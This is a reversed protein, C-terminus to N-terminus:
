RPLGRLSRWDREPNRDRELFLRIAAIGAAGAAVCRAANALTVGGLALVPLEPRAGHERGARCAEALAELGKGPLGPGGPLAKEFVPAFLALSAGARRAARVDAAAHCAVSIAPGDIARGHASHSQGAWQSRIGAVAEGLEEPSLGGPIHVGDAGSELAVATSTGLGANVLVRTGGGGRRAAEVIKATLRTLEGFDAFKERIQIFDVGQSAWFACLDVLKQASKEDGEAPSVRDAIACLLM